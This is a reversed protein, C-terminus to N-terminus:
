RPIEFKCLKLMADSRSFVKRFGFQCKHFIQNSELLNQLHISLHKEFLKSLIPLVAIPRYNVVMARDEGNSIPSVRAPKWQRSFISEILLRNMIDTVIKVMYPFTKKLMTVSFANCVPPNPM